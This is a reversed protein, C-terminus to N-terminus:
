HSSFSAYKEGNNIVRPEVFHAFARAIGRANHVSFRIASCRVVSFKRANLTTAGAATQATRVTLAIAATGPKTGVTTQSTKTLDSKKWYGVDDTLAALTLANKTWLGSDLTLQSLKTPVDALKAAPTGGATGGDHVVLTKKDTDETVERAKGTYAATQGSTGRKLLIKTVM